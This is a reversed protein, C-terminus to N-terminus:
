SNSYIISMEQEQSLEELSNKLWLVEKSAEMIAIYETKMSSLAVYKQLKSQWSVARRSFIMLYGYTSKQTDVDRAMDADIYAYLLPDGNSYCLCTKSKGKLYRM